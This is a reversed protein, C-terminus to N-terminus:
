TPNAKTPMIDNLIILIINKILRDAHKIKIITVTQNIFIYKGCMIHTHPIEQHALVSGNM